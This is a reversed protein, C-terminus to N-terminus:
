RPPSSCRTEDRASWPRASSFIRASLSPTGLCAPATLPVACGRKQSVFGIQPSSSACKAFRLPSQVRTKFFRVWCPLSQLANSYHDPTKRSSALRPVNSFSELKSRLLLAARNWARNATLWQTLQAFQAAPVSLCSSAPAQPRTGLPKTPWNRRSASQRSSSTRPKLPDSRTRSSSRRLVRPDNGRRGATRSLGVRDRRPESVLTQASPSPKPQSV